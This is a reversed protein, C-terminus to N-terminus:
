LVKTIFKILKCHAIRLVNFTVCYEQGMFVCNM